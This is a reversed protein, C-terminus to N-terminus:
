EKYFSSGKPKKANPMKNSTSLSFKILFVILYLNFRFLQVKQPCFNNNTIRYLTWTIYFTEYQPM